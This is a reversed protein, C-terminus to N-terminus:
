KISKNKGLLLNTWNTKKEIPGEQNNEINLEDKDDIEKVKKFKIDINLEDKYIFVFKEFIKFDVYINYKGPYKLYKNQILNNYIMILDINNDYFKSISSADRILINLSAFEKYENPCIKTLIRTYNRKKFNVNAKNNLYNMQKQLPILEELWNIINEKNDNVISEFSGKGTYSYTNNKIQDSIRSLKKM